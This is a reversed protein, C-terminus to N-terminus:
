SCRDSVIGNRIRFAQYQAYDYAADYQDVDHIYWTEGDKLQYRYRNVVELIKKASRASVARASRPNYLYERGELSKAIVLM